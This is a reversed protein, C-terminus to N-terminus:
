AGGGGKRLSKQAKELRLAAKKFDPENGAAKKANAEAMAQRFVQKILDKGYKDQLKKQEEKSPDDLKQIKKGLAELREALAVVRPAAAKATDKDKVAEFTDALDSLVKIHDRLFEEHPTPKPADARGAGSCLLLAVVGQPLLRKM